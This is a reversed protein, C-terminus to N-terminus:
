IFYYRIKLQEESDQHFESDLVLDSAYVNLVNDQGEIGYRTENNDEATCKVHLNFKISNSTNFAENDEKYEFAQPDVAIPILGLRHVLVEDSIVSTNQYMIARDIAMTPVDDMMTRRLANMVSADVGEVQLIMKDKKQERISIKLDQEFKSLDIPQGMRFSSFDNKFEEAM